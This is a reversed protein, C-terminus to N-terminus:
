INNESITELILNLLNECYKSKSHNKIVTNYATNIINSVMESNNILSSIKHSFSEVDANSILCNKANMLIEKHGEQFTSIIPIGTAMAELLINPCGEITHNRERPLSPFLLISGEKLINSIENHKITGGWIVSDELNLKKVLEELLNYYGIKHVPGYLSLSIDKNPYLSKLNFLTEICIHVGKHSVLRGVYILKLPFKFEKEQFKFSDCDVFNRMVNIESLPFLSSVRRKLEMSNVVCKQLKFKHPNYEVWGNSQINKSNFIHFKLWEDGFRHIQPIDIQSLFCVTEACINWMHLNLIVDPSKNTFFLQILEKEKEFLVKIEHNNRWVEKPMLYRHIVKDTICPYKLEEWPTLVQVNFYKKLLNFHNVVVTSNGGKIPPPFNDSVILLKKKMQGPQNNQFKM